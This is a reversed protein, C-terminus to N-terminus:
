YYSSQYGPWCCRLRPRVQSRGVGSMLVGEMYEIKKNGYQKKMASVSRGMPLWSETDLARAV